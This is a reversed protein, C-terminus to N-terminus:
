INLTEDLLEVMTRLYVSLLLLWHFSNSASAWKNYQKAVIYRICNIDIVFIGFVLNFCNDVIFQSVYYCIM